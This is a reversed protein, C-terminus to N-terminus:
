ACAKWILLGVLFLITLCPNLWDTTKTSVTTLEDEDYKQNNEVGEGQAFPRM